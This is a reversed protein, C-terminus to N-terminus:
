AEGKTDAKRLVNEINKLGQQAAPYGPKNKEGICLLIIEDDERTLYVSGPTLTISDSLITRLSENELELKYSVVGWKAGGLVLRILFFADSYIRRLLWLPYLALKYFKVDAIEEFNFFRGILHMCLMGFFMGLAANQWSLEEM